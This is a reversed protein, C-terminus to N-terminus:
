LGKANGGDMATLASKECIMENTTMTPSPFTFLKHFQV